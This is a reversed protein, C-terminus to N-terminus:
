NNEAIPDPPNDKLAPECDHALMRFHTMRRQRETMRGVYHDLWSVGIKRVTIAHNITTLNPRPARAEMIDFTETTDEHGDPHLRHLDIQARRVRIVGDVGGVVSDGPPPDRELAIRVHM